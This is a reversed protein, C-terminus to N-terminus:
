LEQYCFPHLSYFAETLDKALPPAADASCMFHARAQITPARKNWRSSNPQAKGPLRQKQPQPPPRLLRSGRGLTIRFEDKGGRGQHQTRTCGGPLTDPAGPLSAGQTLM